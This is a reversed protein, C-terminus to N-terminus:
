VRDALHAILVVQRLLQLFFTLLFNVTQAHGCPRRAPVCYAVIFFRQNQLLAEVQTERVSLHGLPQLRVSPFHGKVENGLTVVQDLTNRRRTIPPTGTEITFRPPMVYDTTIGVVQPV